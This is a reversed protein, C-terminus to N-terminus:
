DVKKISSAGSENPSSVSANGKYRIDSAGSAEPHNLSVSASVEASTAGSVSVDANESLLDFAKIHSAGTGEISLDKTTGKLTITSAGSVDVSVKPSKLELGADSAGSLGVDIVDDSSILGESVIKCAGSAHLKKLVPASVYVKVSQTPDLNSNDKPSIYLTGGENRVEIYPLLNEDTEINVSSAAEQKIYLDIAGSVQIRTFEGATRNEKKITGNGEIREGHFYHCSSLIVLSCFAFLFLRNM